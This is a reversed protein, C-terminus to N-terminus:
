NVPKLTSSEMFEIETYEKQPLIVPMLGEGMMSKVPYRRLSVVSLNKGGNKEDLISDIALINM